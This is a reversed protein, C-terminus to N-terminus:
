IADHKQLFSPNAVTVIITEKNGDISGDGLASLSPFVAIYTRLSIRYIIYLPKERENTAVGHKNVV